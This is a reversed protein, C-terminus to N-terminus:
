LRSGHKRDQTTNANMNNVGLSTNSDGTTNSTMSNYGIGVNFDAANTTGATGTNEGIFLNYAAGVTFAREFGLDMNHDAGTDKRADTLDDIKTAGAGGSALSGWGGANTYGEFALTTTNYRIM